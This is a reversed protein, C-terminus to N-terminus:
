VFAHSYTVNGETKWRGNIKWWSSSKKKKIEVHNFKNVKLKIAELNQIMTVNWSILLVRKDKRRFNYKLRWKLYQGIQFKNYPLIYSVSGVEDNEM